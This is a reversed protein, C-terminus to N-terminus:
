DLIGSLAHAVPALARGTALDNQPRAIAGQRELPRLCLHHNNFDLVVTGANARLQLPPEEFRKEASLFLPGAQAQWDAGPNDVAVSADQVEISLDAPPGHEANYQWSIFFPLSLPLMALAVSFPLTRSM